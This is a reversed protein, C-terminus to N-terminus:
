KKFRSMYNYLIRASNGDVMLALEQDACVLKAVYIDTYFRKEKRILSSTDKGLYELLRRESADLVEIKKKMRRVSIRCEPARMAIETNERLIDGIERISLSGRLRLVESAVTRYSVRIVGGPELTITAPVVFREIRVVAKIKKM